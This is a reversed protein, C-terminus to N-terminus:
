IVKQRVMKMIKGRALLQPHHQLPFLALLLLLVIKRIWPM